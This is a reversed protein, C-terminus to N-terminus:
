LKRLVFFYHGVHIPELSTKEVIKYRTKLRDEIKKLMRDVKGSHISLMKLSFLIKCKKDVLDSAKILIDVQDPSPIDQFLIDVGEGFLRKKIEEVDRADCFVPAVNKATKALKMLEVMMKPSKEVAFITGSTLDKLHSITSGTSAGLYLINEKRNLSVSLGKEMAAKWKSKKADWTKDTKQIM